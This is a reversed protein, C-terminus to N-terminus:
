KDGEGSPFIRLRILAAVALTVDTTPDARCFRGQM